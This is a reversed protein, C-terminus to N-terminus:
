RHRSIIICGNGEVRFSFDWPVYITSGEDEIIVAGESYFGFPLMNRQFVPIVSWGGSPQLIERRDMPESSDRKSMFEPPAPRTIEHLTIGERSAIVSIRVNVVELPNEDPLMYGYRSNFATKFCKKMKESIKKREMDKSYSGSETDEKYPMYKYPVCIHFSQGKYRMDLFYLSVAKENEIGQNRLTQAAKSNLVNLTNEVEGITEEEWPALLSQSFSLKIDSLLIGVASFMGALPPVIVEKMELDRALDAAHLSGAGGFSLLSCDRVDINKEMTVRRIGRLMNSNVVSRIGLITKEYGLKIEKALRLVSEKSLERNLIIGTNKFSDHHILGALLNADTVTAQYGGKNYCAPGPEAGASQPGIRLAGGKDSWAISGGGAGITTIDIIPISIPLGDIKGEDTWLPTHNSIASFDASTGGMDFTVMQRCNIETSLLVGAAVGGAPGSLLLDVPTVKDSTEVGGNSKMVYFNSHRNKRKLVTRIKELYNGVVPQVFANIVTTSAREYERFDPIIKSSRSVPMGLAELAKELLIEHSPNKYSFLLCIAAAEAGSKRVKEALAEADEVYLPRLITGDYATREPVEFCLDSNVIPEPRQCNFNYLEPRTQRAIHLLDKFGETVLFAVKAGKRELLANTAVTTGHSFSKISPLSRIVDIVAAGPEKPTSLVKNGYIRDNVLYVVDTFTGGIDTAIRM